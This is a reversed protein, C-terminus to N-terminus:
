ELTRQIGNFVGNADVALPRLFQSLHAYDPAICRGSRDKIIRLDLCETSTVAIGELQDVAEEILIGTCGSSMILHSKVCLGIKQEHHIGVDNKARSKERRHDLRKQVLSLTRSNGLRTLGRELM